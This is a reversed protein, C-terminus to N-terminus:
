DLLVLSSIGGLCLIPKKAKSDVDVIVYHRRDRAETTGSSM